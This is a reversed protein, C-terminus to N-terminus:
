GMAATYRDRRAQIIDMYETLGLSELEAIYEPLAEVSRNGLILDTLLENVYTKLVNELANTREMEETTPLALLSGLDTYVEINGKDAAVDTYYNHFESKRKTYDDRVTQDLVNDGILISPFAFMGVTNVLPMGDWGEMAREPEYLRQPIDNQDYEFSYGEIGHRNLVAYETTYIYDFLDVIAELDDCASTVMYRCYTGILPDATLYFGNEGGDDDLIFPAYVADEASGITTEYADWTSYHCTLAAKNEAILQTNMGDGLSVTDYLGAEYLKQMYAIYDLFESKYVNNYVLGTDQDIAALLYVSLGFSTAIGNGFGDIGLAMVEDPIGNGNADAEQIAKLADFLEDHTMYYGYEIGVAELWDARISPSYPSGKYDLSNGDKDVYTPGNLYSFWYVGGDAATVSALAGPCHEEYFAFISGDEDYQDVIERLNVLMGNEAWNLVDTQTLGTWADAIIDPLDVQAAMRTQIVTAISNIDVLEYEIEIGRNLLEREFAQYSLNNDRDKLDWYENFKDRCLVSLRLIETAESGGLAFGGLSTTALALMLCIILGKKLTYM